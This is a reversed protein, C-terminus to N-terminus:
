SKWVSIAHAYVVLIEKRSNRCSHRNRAYGPGYGTTWNRLGFVGSIASEFRLYGARGHWKQLTKPHIHLLAAAEESNLVPEFRPPADSRNARASSTRDVVHENSRSRAPRGRKSHARHPERSSRRATTVPGRGDTNERSMCSRGRSSSRRVRISQSKMSETYRSHRRLIGRHVVIEVGQWLLQHWRRQVQPCGTQSCRSRLDM